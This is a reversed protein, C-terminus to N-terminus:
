PDNGEIQTSHKQNGGTCKGAMLYRCSANPYYKLLNCQDGRKHMCGFVHLDAPRDIKTECQECTGYVRNTNGIYCGRVTAGCKECSLVTEAGAYYSILSCLFSLPYTWIFLSAWFPTWCGRCWSTLDFLLDIITIALGISLYCWLFTILMHATEVQKLHIIFILWLVCEIGYFIWM